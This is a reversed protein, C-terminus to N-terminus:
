ILLEKNIKFYKCNVQDQNPLQLHKELLIKIKEPHSKLKSCRM